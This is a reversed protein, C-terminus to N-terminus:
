GFAGDIRWVTAKQSQFRGGMKLSTGAVKAGLSADIGFDDEYRLSLSFIQLGYRFRGEAVQQWTAEHPYWVLDPPVSPIVEGSLVAQFLLESNGKKRRRVRVGAEACAAQLPVNLQGSMESGWGELREVEIRKAGLAMLLRIIESFKHEFTFRHFQSLPYYIRPTLPHGAYITGDRPHGIPFALHAAETRAVLLPRIGQSELWKKSRALAEHALKHGIKYLGVYPLFAIKVYKWRENSTLLKVLEDGLTGSNPRVPETPEAAAAPMDKEMGDNVVVILQREHYNRALFDPTTTM